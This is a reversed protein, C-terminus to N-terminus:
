SQVQQQNLNKVRTGSCARCYNEVRIVLGGLEASLLFTKRRVIHRRQATHVCGLADCTFGQPAEAFPQRAIIYLRNAQQKDTLELEATEDILGAAEAERMREAATNTAM